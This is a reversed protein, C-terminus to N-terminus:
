ELKSLLVLLTMCFQSSSYSDLNHIDNKYEGLMRQACTIALSRSVADNSNNLNRVLCSLEKLKHDFDIIRGM